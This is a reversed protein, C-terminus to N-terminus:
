CPHLLSLFCRGTVKFHIDCSSPHLPLLHREGKGMPRCGQESSGVPWKSSQHCPLLLWGLPPGSDFLFGHPPRRLRAGGCSDAAQSQEQGAWPRRPLAPVCSSRLSCASRLGRQVWLGLGLLSSPLSSSGSAGRELHNWIQSPRPAETGRHKSILDPKGLAVAGRSDWFCSHTAPLLWHGPMAGSM